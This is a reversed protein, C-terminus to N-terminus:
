HRVTEAPVGQIYGRLHGNEEEAELRCANVLDGISVIGVLAEADLVPLHRIKRATMLDMAERLEHGPQATVLDRTMVAGVTFSHLQDPARASLRLVDRETIIGIPRAGAMVVLSGINHDVLVAVAELVPRDQTITVVHDGKRRVIDRITVHVEQCSPSVDFAPPL